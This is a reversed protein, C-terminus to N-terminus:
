KITKQGFYLSAFTRYLSQGEFVMSETIDHIGLPFVGSKLSLATAGTVKLQHLNGQLWENVVKRATETDGPAFETVFDLNTVQGDSLKLIIPPLLATGILADGYHPLHVRLKTEETGLQRMISTAARGIRRVNDDQVRSGDLKFTAKVRARVGDATLSEVSLDTPELVVADEVYQQVAPPVVFGLAMVVVVLTGLVVMAILSPWRRKQPPQLDDRTQQTPSTSDTSSNTRNSLLPASEDIGNNETENDHEDAAALLPSREDSNTPM